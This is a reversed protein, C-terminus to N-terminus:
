CTGDAAKPAVNTVVSFDPISLSGAADGFQGTAGTTGLMFEVNALLNDDGPTVTEDPPVFAAVIWGRGPVPGAAPSPLGFTMLTLKGVYEGTGASNVLTVTGTLVGRTTVTNITWKIGSITVTGTLTYDNAPAIEAQPGTYSGSFTLYKIRDEGVCSKQSLTGQLQMTAHAPDVEPTKTTAARVAMGGVFVIVLVIGAALIRRM